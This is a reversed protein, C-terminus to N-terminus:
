PRRGISGGNSKGSRAWGKPNTGRVSDAAANAADNRADGSTLLCNSPTALGDIVVPRLGVSRAGRRRAEACLIDRGFSPMSITLPWVWIPM